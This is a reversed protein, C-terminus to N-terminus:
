SPQLLADITRSVMLSLLFDIAVLGFAIGGSTALAVRVVFWHYFMAALVAALLLVSRLEGPLVLSVMVVTAYFAWQLAGAWNAAVVLTVYRQTLGLLRTLYIAAIPFAVWGLVYAMTEAVVTATVRQPWGLAAYQEALVLAYAPAAVAAAAFSGWFGELSLDFLELGRVDGRALLWAGQFSRAIEARSLM